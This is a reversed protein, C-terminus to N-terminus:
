YKKCRNIFDQLMDPNDQLMEILVDFGVSMHERVHHKMLLSFDKYLDSRMTSNLRSRSGKSLYDDKEKLVQGNIIFAM